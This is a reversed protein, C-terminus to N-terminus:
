NGAPSDLKMSFSIEFERLVHGSETKNRAYTVAVQDLFQIKTLNALFNALDVDSPAVGSLKVKLRRDVQQQPKEGSRVGAVSTVTHTTEEINSDFKVLSMEKPMSSDLTELLRTM